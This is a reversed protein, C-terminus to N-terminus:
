GTAAKRGTAKHGTFLVQADAGTLELFRPIYRHPLPTRTEYRFYTDKEIGMRKAFEDRDAYGAMERAAKIRRCFDEVFDANTTGRGMPCITRKRASKTVPYTIRRSESLEDPANHRAHVRDGINEFDPVREGVHSLGDVPIMPSDLLPALSLPDGHIVPRIHDSASSPSALLEAGLLEQRHMARRHSARRTLSKANKPKRLQGNSDVVRLGRYSQKLKAM